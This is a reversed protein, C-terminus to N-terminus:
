PQAEEREVDDRAFARRSRYLGEVARFLISEL